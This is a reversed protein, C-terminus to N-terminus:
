VPLPTQSDLASTTVGPIAPWPDAMPVGPAVLPETVQAISVIYDREISEFLGSRELRRQVAKFSDKKPNFSLICIRDGFAAPWEVDMTSDSKALLHSIRKKRSPAEVVCIAQGAVSRSRRGKRPTWSSSSGSSSPTVTPSAGSLDSRVPKTFATTFRNSLVGGSVALGQLSQRRVVSGLVAQQLQSPEAKPKADALDALAGAVVPTAMSTGSLRVRGRNSSADASLIEVGPAFLDVTGAGFNSFPAPNGKRDSAGVSLVGPLGSPSHPVRDTNTAENGAAAVFIASFLQNGIAVIERLANLSDPNVAGGWSNSIVKAGNSLAYGWATIADSFSGSGDAGLLRIGMLEAGRSTTAVIGACHSGHGNPDDRLARGTILDVGHLDDVFGNGDDDLGNGAVEGPNRWLRPALDRHQLNLGSDVVAVIAM